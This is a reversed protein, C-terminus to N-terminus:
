RKRGAAMRTILRHDADTPSGITLTVIRGDSEHRSLLARVADSHNNGLAYDGTDVHIAVAEGDHEPELIAKLRGEYIARGQEALPSLQSQQASTQMTIGGCGNYMQDGNVRLEKVHSTWRCLKATPVSHM